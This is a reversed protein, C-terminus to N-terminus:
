KALEFPNEISDTSPADRFIEDRHAKGWKLMEEIIPALAKSYETFTYETWIPYDDHVVRKILRNSELEKLEKSLMRTTIKPISKNIEMFRNDGNALATLIMIKWKGSLVYITDQIYLM